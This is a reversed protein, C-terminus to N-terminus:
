VTGRINTEWTEYPEIKAKGVEVQAALHFCIDIKYESMIKKLLKKNTIDGYFLKM